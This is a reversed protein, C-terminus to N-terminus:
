QVGGNSTDMLRLEQKRVVLQEDVTQLEETITVVGEEITEVKCWKTGIYTGIEM